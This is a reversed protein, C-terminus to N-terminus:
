PGEPVFVLPVEITSVDCPAAPDPEFTMSRVAETACEIFAADRIDSKTVCALPVEGARTVQFRLTAFGFADGNRRIAEEFCGTFFESRSRMEEEVVPKARCSSTGGTVSDAGPAAQGYCVPMPGPPVPDGWCAALGLLIPAALFTRPGRLLV